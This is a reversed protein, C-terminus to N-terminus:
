TTLSSSTLVSVHNTPAGKDIDYGGVAYLANDLVSSGLSLLNGTLIPGVSWKQTMPDFIEVSSSRSPNGGKVYSSYRSLTRRRQSNNIKEEEETFTPKASSGTDVVYIKGQFVSVSNGIYIHPAGMSPGPHWKQTGPDFIELTNLPNGQDDLGGMVYVNGEWACTGCGQRPTIMRVGSTWRQTIPTYVEVSSLTTFHQDEGGVVYLKGEMATVGMNRRGTPMTPGLSWTDRQLDLIEVVNLIGTHNRGGVAYLQQEIVGVGFSSRPITLAPGENWSWTARTPNNRNTTTMTAPPTPPPMVEEASGYVEVSNFYNGHNDGGGLVLLRGGASAVGM